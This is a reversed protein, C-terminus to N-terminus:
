PVSLHSEYDVASSAFCTLCQKLVTNGLTGHGRDDLFPFLWSGIGAFLHPSHAAALGILTPSASCLQPSFISSTPCHRRRHHHHHNSSPTLTQKHPILRPSAQIVLVVQLNGRQNLQLGAWLGLCCLQGVPLSTLCPWPFM